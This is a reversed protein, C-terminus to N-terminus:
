NTNGTTLAVLQRTARHLDQYNKGTPKGAAHNNRIAAEIARIRTRLTDATAPMAKNYM